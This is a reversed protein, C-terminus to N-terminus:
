ITPPHRTVTVPVVLLLLELNRDRIILTEWYNLNSSHDFRSSLENLSVATKYMSADGFVEHRTITKLLGNEFFLLGMEKEPRMLLGCIFNSVAKVLMYNQYMQGIRLAESLVDKLLVWLKHNEIFLPAVHSVLNSLLSLASCGLHISEINTTSHTSADELLSSVLNLNM